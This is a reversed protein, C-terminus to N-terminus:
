GITGGALSTGYFNGDTGQILAGGFEGGKHLTLRWSLGMEKPATRIVLRAHTNPSLLQPSPL